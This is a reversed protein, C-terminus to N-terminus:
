EATIYVKVTIHKQLCKLIVFNYKGDGSYPLSVVKKSNMMKKKNSNIFNWLGSKSQDRKGSMGVCKAPGDIIQDNKVKHPSIAHSPTRPM